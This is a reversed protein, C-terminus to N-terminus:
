GFRTVRFIDCQAQRIATEPDITGLKDHQVRKLMEKDDQVQELNYLYVAIYVEGISVGYISYPYHLSLTHITYPLPIKTFVTFFRLYPLIQLNLFFFSFILFLLHFASWGSIIFIM